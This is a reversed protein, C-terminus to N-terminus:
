SRPWICCSGMLPMQHGGTLPASRVPTTTNPSWSTQGRRVDTIDPSMPLEGPDTRPGAWYHAQGDVMIVPWRTFGDGNGAAASSVAWTGLGILGVMLVSLVNYKKWM